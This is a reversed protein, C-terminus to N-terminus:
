VPSQTNYQKMRLHFNQLYNHNNMATNEYYRNQNQVFMENNMKHSSNSITDVKRFQELSSNPITQMSNSEFNSMPKRQQNLSLLHQIFADRKLNIADPRLKYDVTLCKLLFQRAEPSLDPRLSHLSIPTVVARKLEYESTCHSFPTKGHLFEYFIVGFAWIDTKMGYMHDIMGEPSMYLPSGIDLDM